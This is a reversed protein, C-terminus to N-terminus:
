ILITKLLIKIKNINVVDKRWGTILRSKQDNKKLYNLIM